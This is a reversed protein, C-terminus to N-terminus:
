DGNGPTVSAPKYRFGLALGASSWLVINALAFNVAVAAAITDFPIGAFQNLMGAASLMPVGTAPPTVPIVSIFAYVMKCVALLALGADYGFAYFLAFGLAVDLFVCFGTLVVVGPLKAMLLRTEGGIAALLELLRRRKTGEPFRDALRRQWGQRSLVYLFLVGALVCGLSFVIWVARNELRIAAFGLAGACLTALIELLRDLTVWAGMKASRHTPMLLPAFEGVRGPSYNGGVKSIFHAAVTKGPEGLVYVWKLVRLWQAGVLMAATLAIWGWDASLLAGSVDEWGIWAVVAVYLVVSFLWGYRWWRNKGMREILSTRGGAM